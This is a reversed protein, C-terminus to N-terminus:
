NPLAMAVCGVKIQVQLPMPVNLCVEFVVNCYVAGEVAVPVAVTLTLTLPVESVLVALM